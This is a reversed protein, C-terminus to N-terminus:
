RAEMLYEITAKVSAVEQRLVKVYSEWRDAEAQVRKVQDRLFDALELERKKPSDNKYNGDM